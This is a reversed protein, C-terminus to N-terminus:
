LVFRFGPIVKFVYECFKDAKEKKNESPHVEKFLKIFDKKTLKGSPCEKIFNNHLAIIQQRTLRTNDLLLRIEEETLRKPDKKPGKASVCNGM